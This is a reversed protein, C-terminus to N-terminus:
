FHLIALFFHTLKTNKIAVSKRVKKTEKQFCFTRNRKKKLDANKIKSLGVKQKQRLIHSDQM